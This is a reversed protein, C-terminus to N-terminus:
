RSTAFGLAGADMAARVLTAMAAIETGTAAREYADDGLVYARLASYGILVAVNLGLPGAALLSLYEPISEWRWPVGARLSALPMGEVHELMQLLADREDMRCPALAFGCNGLVATTVGHWCSQTLLPDWTVQADYHTHVDIFGPAVILGDVDLVRRAPVDVRGIAVIRGDEIAVDATVAPAGTGDCVQGGRLLLDIM